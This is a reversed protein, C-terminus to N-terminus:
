LEIGKAALVRRVQRVAGKIAHEKNTPSSSCPLSVEEGYGVAVLRGHGNRGDIEVRAAMGLEREISQVLERFFKKTSAM